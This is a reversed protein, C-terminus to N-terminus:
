PARRQSDILRATLSATARNWMRLAFWRILTQDLLRAFGHRLERRASLELRTGNPVQAFAHRYELKPLRPMTAVYRILRPRDYEILECDVHGRRGGLAKVLLRCRGGPSSWGEIQDVSEIERFHEPWHRPDSVHDFVDEVPVPVTVVRRIEPM